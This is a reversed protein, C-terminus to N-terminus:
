GVFLPFPSAVFWAALVCFGAVLLIAISVVIRFIIDLFRRSRPRTWLYVIWALAPVPVFGLGFAFRQIASNPHLPPNAMWVSLAAAALLVVAALSGIAAILRAIRAIRKAHLM